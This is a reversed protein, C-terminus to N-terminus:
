CCHVCRHDKYLVLVHQVRDLVLLKVVVLLLCVVQCVGVTAEDVHSPTSAREKIIVRAVLWLEHCQSATISQGISSSRMLRDVAITM